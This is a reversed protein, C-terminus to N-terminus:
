IRVVEEHPTIRIKYVTLMLHVNSETWWMKNGKGNILRWVDHQPLEKEKQTWRDMQIPINNEVKCSAQKKYFVVMSKYYTKKTQKCTLSVLETDTLCIVANIPGCGQSNWSIPRILPEAQNLAEFIGVATYTPWQCGLIWVRGVACFLLLLVNEWM